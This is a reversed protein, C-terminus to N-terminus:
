SADRNFHGRFIPFGHIVSLVFFCLVFVSLLFMVDAIYNTVILQGV